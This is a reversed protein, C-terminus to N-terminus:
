RAGERGARRATRREPTFIEDIRLDFLDAISFALPLSPDYRGTELANVKQRSVGLREALDARSLWGLMQGLLPSRPGLSVLGVRLGLERAAVATVASIVSWLPGSDVQRVPSDAALAM